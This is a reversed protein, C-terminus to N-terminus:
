MSLPTAKSCGMVGFQILYVTFSAQRLSVLIYHIPVGIVFLCWELTSFTNKYRIPFIFGTFISVLWSGHILVIPFYIKRADLLHTEDWSTILIIVIAYLTHQQSSVSCDLLIHHNINLICHVVNSFHNVRQQFFISDISLRWSKLLKPYMPRVVYHQSTYCNGICYTSLSYSYLKLM